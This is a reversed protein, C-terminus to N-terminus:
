LYVEIKKYSAPDFKKLDSIMYHCGDIDNIMIAGTELKVVAFFPNSVIVTANGADTEIDWYYYGFKEKISTIKLLEPIFYRKGLEELLIRNTEEDFDSMRRILGIEKGQENKHPPVERISLFEDPNSMPFARLVVVREFHEQKGDPQTVDLSILGGKSKQFKANEPTLPISIRTELLAELGDDLLDDKKKNDAM